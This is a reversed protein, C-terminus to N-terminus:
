QVEHEQIEWGGYGTTRDPSWNTGEKITSALNECAEKSPRVSFVGLVDAGNLGYDVVVVFVKM